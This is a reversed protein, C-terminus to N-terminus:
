KTAELAAVIPGVNNHFAVPRIILNVKGKYLM